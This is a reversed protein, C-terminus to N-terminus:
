WIHIFIDIDVHYGKVHSLHEEKVAVGDLYQVNKIHMLNHAAINVM